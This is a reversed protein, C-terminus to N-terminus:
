MTQHLEALQQAVVLIGPRPPIPALSGRDISCTRRHSTCRQAECLDRKMEPYLKHYSASMTSQMKGRALGRKLLRSRPSPCLSLDPVQSVHLHPLTTKPHRAGRGGRTTNTRPKADRIFKEILVLGERNLGKSCQPSGGQPVCMSSLGDSLLLRTRLGIFQPTM